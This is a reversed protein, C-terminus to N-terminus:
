RCEDPHQTPRPLPSPLPAISNGRPRQSPIVRTRRIAKMPTAFTPLRRHVASILFSIAAVSPYILDITTGLPGL